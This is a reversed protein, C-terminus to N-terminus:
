DEPKQTLRLGSSTQILQGFEVWGESTLLRHRRSCDFFKGNDLVVRYAPEIGKLIGGSAQAICQSEGDWSLVDANTESLIEVSQREGSGTQIFTWPSICQNAAIFARETYDAGAAFFKVQQFYLERRYDGKDPYYQDAKNYKQDDALVELAEALEVQEDESLDKAYAAVLSKTLEDLRGM